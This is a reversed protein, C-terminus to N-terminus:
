HTFVIWCFAVDIESAVVSSCYLGGMKNTFTMRSEIQCAISHSTNQRSLTFEFSFTELLGTNIILVYSQKKKKDTKYVVRIMPSTELVSIM